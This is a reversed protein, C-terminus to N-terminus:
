IKYRELYNNARQKSNSELNYATSVMKLIGLM